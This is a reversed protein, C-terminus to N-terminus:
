SRLARDLAPAEDSASRKTSAAHRVHQFSVDASRRVVALGQEIKATAVDPANPIPVPTAGDPM